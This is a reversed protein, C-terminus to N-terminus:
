YSGVDVRIIEDLQMNEEILKLLLATSDKGGSFSLIKGM